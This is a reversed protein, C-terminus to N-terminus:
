LHRFPFPFYHSLLLARRAIMRKRKRGSARQPRPRVASTSRRSANPGRSQYDGATGHGAPRRAAYATAGVPAWASLVASPNIPLRGGMEIRRGRDYWSEGPATLGLHDIAMYETMAFCDHTEIADIQALDIGARERKWYPAASKRFFMPRTSAKVKSRYSLPASRHGWGAIRSLSEVSRGAQAREAAWEDSALFIVAATPVQGCDM